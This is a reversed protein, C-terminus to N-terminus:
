STKFTPRRLVLCCQGDDEGHKLEGLILLRLEILRSLVIVGFFQSCLGLILLADEALEKLLRLHTFIALHGLGLVTEIGTSVARTLAVSSVSSALASLSSYYKSFMM